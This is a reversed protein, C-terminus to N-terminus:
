TSRGLIKLRIKSIGFISGPSLTQPLDCDFRATYSHGDTPHTWIFSNLRGNARATSFYFDMIDGADSSNLGKWKLDVYFIASSSLGIREESGDDGLHIVQNINGKETLIDQPYPTSLTYTSDASATSLYDWMEKAAM